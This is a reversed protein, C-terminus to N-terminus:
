RDLLGRIAEAIESAGGRCQGLYCKGLFILMKDSKDRIARVYQARRISMKAHARARVLVV